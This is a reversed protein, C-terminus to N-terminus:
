VLLGDSLCVILVICSLTLAVEVRGGITEIGIGRHGVKIFLLLLLLLVILLIGYSKLDFM